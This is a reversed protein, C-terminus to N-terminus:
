GGQTAKIILVDDNSRLETSNWASKIVISENVAVAIGQHAIELQTLMQQINVNPPFEKVEKNVKITIM